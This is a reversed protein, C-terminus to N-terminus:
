FLYIRELQALSFISTDCLLIDENAPLLTFLFCFSWCCIKNQYITCELSLHSKGNGRCQMMSALNDLISFFFFFKKGYKVTGAIIEANPSTWKWFKSVDDHCPSTSLSSSFKKCHIGSLPSLATSTLFQVSASFIREWLMKRCMSCMKLRSKSRPETTALFFPPIDNRRKWYTQSDLCQRRPLVVTRRWFVQWYCAMPKCGTGRHIYCHEYNRGCVGFSVM